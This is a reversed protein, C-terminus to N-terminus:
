VHRDMLTSRRFRPRTISGSRRRWDRSGSGNHAVSEGPSGIHLFQSFGGSMDRFWVRIEAKKGVEFPLRREPGSIGPLGSAIDHSTLVFCCRLPARDSSALCSVPRYRFSRHIFCSYGGYISVSWRPLSGASVHRRSLSRLLLDDSDSRPVSTYITRCLGSGAGEQAVWSGDCNLRRILLWTESCFLAQAICIAKAAEAVVTTRLAWNPYLSM